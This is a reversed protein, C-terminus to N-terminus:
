EKDGKVKTKVPRAKIVDGDRLYRRWQPHDKVFEGEEKLPRMDPRQFNRVILGLAPKIYIKNM